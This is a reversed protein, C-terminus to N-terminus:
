HGWVGERRRPVGDRAERAHAQYASNELGGPGPPQSPHDRQLRSRGEM